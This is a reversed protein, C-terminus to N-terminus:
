DDQYDTCAAGLQRLDYLAFLRERGKGYFGFNLWVRCSTGSDFEWQALVGSRDETYYQQAVQHFEVRPDTPEIGYDGVVNDGVWHLEWYEGEARPTPFLVTGRYQLM